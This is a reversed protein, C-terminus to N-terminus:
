ITPSKKYTTYNKLVDLIYQEEIAQRMSYQHFTVYIPDRSVEYASSIKRVLFGIFLYFVSLGTFGFSLLLAGLSGPVLFMEDSNGVVDGLLGTATSSFGPLITLLDMFFIAQIDVISGLLSARELSIEAIGLTERASDHIPLIPLILNPLFIDQEAVRSEWDLIDGGSFEVRLYFSLGLFLFLIFCVWFVM